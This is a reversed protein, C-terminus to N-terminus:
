QKFVNKKVVRGDESEIYVFFWGNPLDALSFCNNPLPHAKVVQGNLDILQITKIAVATQVILLDSTPNPYCRVDFNGSTENTIVEQAKAQFVLFYLSFILLRKM